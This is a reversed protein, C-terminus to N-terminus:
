EAQRPAGYLYHDHEVAVDTPGDADEVLGLLSLWPDRVPKPMARSLYAKLAQRVHDAESRGTQQALAKLQQEQDDDIYLQKRIM